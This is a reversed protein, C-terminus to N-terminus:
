EVRLGERKREEGGAGRADRQVVIYVCVCAGVVPAGGYLLALGDAIILAWAVLAAADNAGVCVCAAGAGAGATTVPCAPTYM